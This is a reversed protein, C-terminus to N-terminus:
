GLKTFELYIDFAQDGPYRDVTLRLINYVNKLYTDCEKLDNKYPFPWKEEVRDNFFFTYLSAKNQLKTIIILNGYYYANEELHTFIKKQLLAWDNIDESKLKLKFDIM